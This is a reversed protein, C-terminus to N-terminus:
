GGYDKEGENPNSSDEVGDFSTLEDGFVSLGM